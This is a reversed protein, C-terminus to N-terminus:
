IKGRTATSAVYCSNFVKGFVAVTGLGTVKRQQVRYVGIWGYGGRSYKGWGARIYLWKEM